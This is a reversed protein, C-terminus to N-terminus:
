GDYGVRDRIYYITPQSTQHVLRILYEGLMSVIVITVANLFSLLVSLTAWGPVPVGGFIADLFYVVSLIFAGLAVVMGVGSVVRLPLLSYNFLIRMVLGALRRLNYTSKGAARPPHAVLVNARRTSFLLALGTIYPYSTRYGCIRDVVDRRMLRFNTVVLDPPQGFIRRNISAIMRSGFRRYAVHQKQKFQGYVVDYQGELAKDVLTRIEEPPNQLDDDLTVTYDGTAHQLGCFIATHQGYNRLLDIATICSNAEAKARIIPWSGDSSGDNILILHYAWGQGEFFAVTRDITQAVIAESNFVPIVGSISLQPETM